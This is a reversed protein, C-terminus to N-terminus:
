LVAKDLQTLGEPHGSVHGGAQFSDRDGLYQWEKTQIIQRLFQGHMQAAPWNHAAIEASFLSYVAWTITLRTEDHRMRAVRRRLTSIALNRFHISLNETEPNSNITTLIAASRALYAYGICEDQLGDVADQWFADMFITTGALDIEKGHLSPLFCDRTFVLCEHVM